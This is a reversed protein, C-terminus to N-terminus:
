AWSPLSLRVRVEPKIKLAGMMSSFPIIGWDLQHLVLETVFRGEERRVSLEVPRSRSNLTLTGAVKAGGEPERTIATSVFHIPSPSLLVERELNGEIDRKDWDSLAQTPQGDQLAHLVRLSRPDFTGEVADDDAKVTFRTVALELDHALRSLLGDKETFVRCTATTADFTPM